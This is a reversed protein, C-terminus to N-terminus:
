FKVPFQNYCIFRGYIFLVSDTIKHNIQDQSKEVATASDQGSALIMPKSHGNSLVVLLYWLQTYECVCWPESPAWVSWQPLIRLTWVLCTSVALFILKMTLSEWYAGFCTVQNKETKWCCFNASKLPFWDTSKLLSSLATKWAEGHRSLEVVAGCLLGTCPSCLYGGSMEGRLTLFVLGDNEQWHERCGCPALVWQPASAYM